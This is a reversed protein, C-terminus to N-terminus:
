YCLARLEQQQSMHYPNICVGDSGVGDSKDCVHCLRQCGGEKLRSAWEAKTRQCIPAEATPIELVTQQWSSFTVTLTTKVFGKNEDEKFPCLLSPHKHAQKTPLASKSASAM